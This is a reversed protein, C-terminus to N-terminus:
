QGRKDALMNRDIFFLVAISIWYAAIDKFSFFRGLILKGALTRRFVDLQPQDILRSCEVLAALLATTLAVGMPHLRPFLTVLFFYLAVTWLASGGYKWAFFPLPLHRWLIGAPITIAVILIATIRRSM